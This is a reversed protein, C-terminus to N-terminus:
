DSDSLLKMKGDDQFNWSQDGPYGEVVVRTLRNGTFRATHGARAFSKRKANWSWEAWISKCSNGHLEVNHVLLIRFIRTYHFIVFKIKISFVFLLVLLYIYFLLNVWYPWLKKWNNDWCMSSVIQIKEFYISGPWQGLSNLTLWHGPLDPNLGQDLWVLSEFFPVQHRRLMIIYSYLTFHLLGPFPTTGEGVGQHPLQQFPLRWTM